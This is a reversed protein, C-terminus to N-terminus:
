ASLFPGDVCMCVATLCSGVDHARTYGHLLQDKEDNVTRLLSSPPWGTDFPESDHLMMHAAMWVQWWLSSLWGRM